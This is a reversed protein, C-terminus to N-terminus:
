EYNGYYSYYSKSTKDVKTLVCGLVKAGNRQLMQLANKADRKDTDKASAVFVTGDTINSVPIADAVANLPPCDIIIFDFKERFRNILEAFKNSALLEQPNPVSKGSTLVYLKGDVTNDKFKHFYHEDDIDIDNTDKMLNSIGVKNSVKYIKHQVPKRLDCDILLVKSYKAISVMALNSAVSSKGEAPNSSTINVVQVDENFSSYEINTRLQRYVEMYDFQSQKKKNRKDNRKPAVKREM